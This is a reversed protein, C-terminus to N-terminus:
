VLDHRTVVTECLQSLLFAIKIKPLNSKPNEPAPFVGEAFYLKVPFFYKTSCRSQLFLVSACRPYTTPFVAQFCTICVSINRRRKEWSWFVPLDATEVGVWKGATVPCLGVSTALEFCQVTM